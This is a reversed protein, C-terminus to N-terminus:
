NKDVFITSLNLSEKIKAAYSTAEEKDNFGGVKLRYWTKNNMDVAIVKVPIGKQIFKEAKRKAYIPDEYATLNVTWGTSSHTNNVKKEASAKKATIESPKKNEIITSNDQLNDLSKNNSVQKTVDSTKINESIDPPSLTQQEFQEPFDNVKQNLQEISSDGNNIELDPNKAAISSMDEELISVLETLKSVKTQLSSVIVGMVVISLIAVIGFSLSAYTIIVAKKNEYNIVHNKNKKQESTDLSMAKLDADDSIIELVEEQYTTESMAQEQMTTQLNEEKVSLINTTGNDPAFDCEVSDSNSADATMANQEEFIVGCVNARSIDDIGQVDANGDAQDLKSNDDFGANVLLRDIADEEDTIEDFDAMFHVDSFLFEGTVVQQNQKVKEISGVSFKDFISFDDALYIDDIELADAERDCEELENNAEVGPNILLRDITEEDNPIHSLPVPASEENDRMVDLDALIIDDERANFDPAFRNRKLKQRKTINSNMSYPTFYRYPRPFHKNIIPL